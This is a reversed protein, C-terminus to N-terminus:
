AGTMRDVRALHELARDLSAEDGADIAVAARAEEADLAEDLQKQRRMVALDAESADARAARRRAIRAELVTDDAQCRLIVFPVNMATALEAFPRRRRRLIFAADVIVPYGAEIVLRALELLRAFTRDSAAVDYIGQNLDSGSAQHAAFGHLRKREVDSRLRIAGTRELAVQSVHTKGSGSLGSTIALFPPRGRVYREALAIRDTFDRRERERVDASAQRQAAHICDIKARVMARYVLYYRLVALGAYDGSAELYRNLLRHAFDPRGQSALDMVTFALESMVDIWRLAADFEICDFMSIREDILAINRLHLDGHCERIRGERRRASLIPVLRGHEALTWCRLAAIRDRVSDTAVHAEIAEFNELAPALLAAPTGYRPHDVAVASTAHFRAIGDGLQDIHEARLRGDRLYRDFLAEQAFERMRVAYEITPGEGGIRPHTSTGNITVVDVYLQPAYRRNLRLEEACYFKRRELTTFDVFGLDVPKKVKYVYDGTLLLWSIHTEILRIGAVPHPYCCPDLLAQILASMRRIIRRGVPDTM